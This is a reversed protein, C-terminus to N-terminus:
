APPEDAPRDIDAGRALEGPNNNIADMAQGLKEDILFADKGIDALMPSDAPLADSIAKLREAILTRVAKLENWVEAPTMAM